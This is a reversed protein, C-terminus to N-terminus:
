DILRIRFGRQNLLQAIAPENGVVDVLDGCLEVRPEREGQQALLERVSAQAEVEDSPENFDIAGRDFLSVNGREVGFSLSLSV